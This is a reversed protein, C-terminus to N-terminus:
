GHLQRFNVVDKRAAEMPADDSSEQQILYFRVGGTSEAATFTQKWLEQGEGLLPQHGKANKPWDSCLVCQIRGPYKEIFAVSGKMGQGVLAVDLHFLLDQASALLDIPRVSDVTVFEVAHNHYGCAMNLPRLRECAQNLREALRKWGDLGQGEFGHFAQPGATAALGRVAVINQSGLIRNLEITRTLGDPTFSPSENHTSFCKLGADDLMSRVQKAYSITWYFYPGYFEVGDYGIKAISGLLAACDKEFDAHLGALMLGLPIRTKTQARLTASSGALSLFTRRLM